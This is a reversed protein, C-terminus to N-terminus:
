NICAVPGYRSVHGLRVGGPCCGQNSRISGSAVVVAFCFVFLLCIEEKQRTYLLVAACTYSLSCPHQTDADATNLVLLTDTISQDRSPSPHRLHSSPWGQDMTGYHHLIMM